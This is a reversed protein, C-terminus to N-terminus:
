QGNQKRGVDTKWRLAVLFIAAFASLAVVAFFGDDPDPPPMIFLGAAAVPPLALNLRRSWRPTLLASLLFGALLIEVAVAGALLVGETVPNGNMHGNLIDAIATATTLEHVDRFLINFLAFAWILSLKLGTGPNQAPPHM